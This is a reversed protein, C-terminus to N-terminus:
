RPSAVSRDLWALQDAMGLLPVLYTLWSPLWGLLWGRLYWFVQCQRPLRLQWGRVAMPRAVGGACGSWKAGAGGFAYASLGDCPALRLEVADGVLLEEAVPEALVVNIRQAGRERGPCASRLGDGQCHGAPEAPGVGGRFLSRHGPPVVGFGGLLRGCGERCGSARRVVTM